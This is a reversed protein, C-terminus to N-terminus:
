RIYQSAATTPTPVKEIWYENKLKQLGKYAIQSSSYHITVLSGYSYLSVGKVNKLKTTYLVQNAVEYAQSGWSYNGGSVSMYIGLGSYLNVNKGEVVKNWWDMVDAYGAVSHTFAWYSQPLIYEIWENEVWKKTDCFLYSNYHEQGATNSGSSVSGNGNRYIGTPSIGLQVGRGNEINFETMADHLKKIFKDVNDRRWQKKDTSSSKSYGSSPNNNIYTEYDAQDPETLVTIGSSMQAYFYDDFHIADVDYKEMVELCVDVIYDQVETEYPDLIAGKTGDSRYTMLINKAKSAPNKPYDAYTQAVDEATSSASYGYAKIRYPNLWAHFEIGRKHCENILWELYDWQAFSELTGYSSSIPALDTPYFANNMTRIHFIMCNLNYEEFMDLIEQLNNKMTAENASPSFNGAYSSVWAARLQTEPQVYSTPIQVVTSSGRYKVTTGNYTLDELGVVTSEWVATLVISYRYNFILPNSVMQGNLKWGKFVCDTKTIDTPLSIVDNYQVTIPAIEPGGDTNFLIEYTITTDWAAYLVLDGITNPAIETVPSGTLDSNLYWGKFLENLPKPLQIATTSSQYSFLTPQNVTPYDWFAETYIEIYSVPDNIIYRYFDLAGYTYGYPEYGFRKNSACIYDRVYYGLCSWKEKYEASNFFYNNDNAELNNEFLLMNADGVSGGIYNKWSGLFENPSDGYVFTNFDEEPKVFKYFDTLFNLTFDEKSLYGWAGGNLEYTIAYVYSNDSKYQATIELNTTVNNFEKSWGTFIFGERTPNTPPTANKGEEVKQEKLITGDYDKFVVKYTVVYVEYQATIVIDDQINNYSKDWGTFMYGQRDPATPANANEGEIVLEEKLITGDYDKFTVKYKIIIKEYQATVVLDKTVNDFKVDWGKFTYGDRKPNTPPTANKGNEVTEEKLVKGDYDKFTVTWTEKGVQIYKATIELDTTVKDYAVDWGSFMYGDRIPDKPPTASNNRLVQEEKLITGDYDKFIVTYYKVNSEYQAVVNLDSTVNDFSISWGIFDYGNRTPEKPARASDGKNVKDIRLVTGDYDFFIVTFQEKVSNEWKAKLTISENIPISFDFIEDNLYWGLFDFDEKTPPEPEEVTYGKKVVIAGVLTGGDSDFAVTVNTVVTCGTLAVMILIIVLLLIKKM